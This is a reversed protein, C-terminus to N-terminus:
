APQRSPHAFAKAPREIFVWSALGCGWALGLTALLFSWFDLGAFSLLMGAPWGYLYTGYSIDYDDTIRQFPTLAIGFALWYLILGGVLMASPEAIPRYFLAAAFILLALVTRGRGLHHHLDDRYLYCTAGLGFAALFRITPYPAGIAMDVLPAFRFQEVRWYIGPVNSLCFLLFFFLTAKFVIGRRLLGLRALLAVLLYCRFEYSITWMPTNPEVHRTGLLIEPPRQLIAARWWQTLETASGHLYSVLLASIVFAVLFAPYIRLVRKRLYSRISSSNEMSQVILYGSLLFFADVCLAAITLGNGTMWQLPDARPIAPRFQECAHTVIVGTAFILRLLGINNRRRSVAGTM